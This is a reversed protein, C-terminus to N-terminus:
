FTFVYELAFERGVAGLLRTPAFDYDVKYPDKHNWSTANFANNVYLNVKMFETVQYGVNFNWTIFPGVRGYYRATQQGANPNPNASGDPRTAPELCNLSPSDSPM